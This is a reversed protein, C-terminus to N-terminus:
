RLTHTATQCEMQIQLQPLQLNPNLFKHFFDHFFIDLFIILHVQLFSSFLTM